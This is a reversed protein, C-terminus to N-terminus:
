SKITESLNDDVLVVAFYIVIKSADGSNQFCMAWTKSLEAAAAIRKRPLRKENLPHDGRSEFLFSHNTNMRKSSTMM